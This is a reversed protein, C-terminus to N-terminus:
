PRSDAGTLLTHSWRRQSVKGYEERKQFMAETHSDRIAADPVQQCVFSYAMSPSSGCSLSNSKNRLLSLFIRQSSPLLDQYTIYVLSIITSAWMPLCWQLLVAVVGERHLGSSRPPLPIQDKDEPGETSVSHDIGLELVGDLLLQLPDLM